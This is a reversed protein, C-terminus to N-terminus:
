TPLGLYEPVDNVVTLKFPSQISDDWKVTCKVDRTFLKGDKGRALEKLVVKPFSLEIKHRHTSEIISGEATMTIARETNSLLDAFFSDNELLMKFSLEVKRADLLLRSRCVPSGDVGTELKPGGATYGDKDNFTNELKFSFDKIKASIDSGGYTLTLDLFRPHSVPSVLAPMTMSSAEQHGSGLLVCGCEFQKGTDGSLTASQAAMDRYKFKQGDGISHVITTVPLQVGATKTNMLTIEHKYVGTTGDELATVLKGCALGFVWPLIYTTSDCTMNFGTSVTTNRQYTAFEHGKGFHGENTIKEPDFDPTNDTKLTHAATIDTDALATDYASQQKLSFGLEINSTTYFSM